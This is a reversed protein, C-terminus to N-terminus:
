RRSRIQQDDSESASPAVVSLHRWSPSCRDTRRSRGNHGCAAVSRRSKPFSPTSAPSIACMCSSSAHWTALAIRVTPEVNGETVANGGPEDDDRSTAAMAAFQRAADWNLPGQGALAKALDGFMPLNLFPNDGFEASSDDDEM